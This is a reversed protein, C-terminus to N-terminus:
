VSFVVVRGKTFKGDKFKSSDAVYLRRRQVDLCLRTPRWKVQERSVVQRVYNLTPSLLTVRRNGVDVVFVFENNDVAVHRPVYYQGVNSGRQGGQYQVIHRGDASTKCVRHIPDNGSGHCVVFQGNTLQTAQWPYVVEDPLIVDRLLDGHPSFEKIKRLEGCTVLLNHGANVTCGRPIDYVPWQTASGELGLRHVCEVVDDSIYLCLFYECSTMDTLGRFNPVTLCRQLRYTIVDFVEVQDREKFRLLYIENGLITM